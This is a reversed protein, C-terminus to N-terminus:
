CSSPCSPMSPACANSLCEMGGMGPMHLDTIVLDVKQAPSSTSRRRAARRPCRSSVGDARADDAPRRRMRREDDVVLVRKMRGGGGAARRSLHHRARASDRGHGHRPHARCSASSSPSRRARRREQRKTFFPTFIHPRVPRRIDATTASRSSWTTTADAYTRVRIAGGHAAGAGREGPSQAGGSVNPRPRLQRRVHTRSGAHHRRRVRGGRESVFDAARSSCRGSTSRARADAPAAPRAGTLGAVVREIRDTEDVIM